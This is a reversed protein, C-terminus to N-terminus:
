HTARLAAQYKPINNFFNTRADKFDTFKEYYKNYTVTKKFFKWLREILNLNPSYTPLFIFIIKGLQQRYREVEKSHCYGANDLILYITKADPNNQILLDMLRKMSESHVSDTFDVAVHLTDINVAGNINVRQRGANSPLEAEEGREFWGYAPHSNHQPHVGDAFYFVDSEDANKRLQEYDDLWKQQAVPDSKSPVLKPKKYEFNLDHLLKTIGSVSYQVGFTERVYAIIPKVDLYINNRLHDKLQDKQQVTLFSSRGAYHIELLGNIGEAKYLRFYRRVTDSDLLFITSVQSVSFGHALALVVRIRDAYRQGSIKHYKKRLKQIHKRPLHYDM